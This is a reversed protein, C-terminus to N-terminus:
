SVQIMREKLIKYEVKTVSWQLFPKLINPESLGAQASVRIGIM